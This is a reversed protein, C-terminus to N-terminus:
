GVSQMLAAFADGHVVFATCQRVDGLKQTGNLEEKTACITEANERVTSWSSVLSSSASENKQSCALDPMLCCSSFMLREGRM